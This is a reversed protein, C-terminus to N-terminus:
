KLKKVKKRGTQFLRGNALPSVIMRPRATARVDWKGILIVSLKSSTTYIPTSSLPIFYIIKVHSFHDEYNMGARGQMLEEAISILLLRHNQKKEPGSESNVVLQKVSNFKM